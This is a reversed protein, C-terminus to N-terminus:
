QRIKLLAERSIEALYPDDSQTFKTLLTESAPSGISGIAFAAERRTDDTEARNAAVGTLVKLAQAFVPISETLDKPEVAPATKFREPLFNEPTMKTEDLGRVSEAIQGLSRAASRRLFENEETPRSSFSAALVNVAALDGATGLAFAAASRVEVDRDRRFLQILPVGAAPDGVFGLAYAGERRVFPSRDSLLPILVAVAESPPLFVVSMAATARVIEDRDRLAPVAIRSAWESRANRIRFLADRKAESDGSAIQRTLLEEFANRGDDAQAYLFGGIGFFCLLTFTLIPRIAAPIFKQGYNM